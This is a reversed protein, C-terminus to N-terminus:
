EVPDPPGPTPEEAHPGAYGLAELAKEIERPVEFADGSSRSVRNQHLYRALERALEGVREPHEASMDIRERPDRALDFLKPPRDRFEVLKWHGRLIGRQQGQPSEFYAWERSGPGGSLPPLFSTGQVREPPDIGLCDTITTFVDVLQVVDAVRGARPPGPAKPRPRCTPGSAGRMEPMSVLLPIRVLEEYVQEHLLEGHDQFEEGHDSILIVITRQLKGSRQLADLLAGVQHDTYAVGADYLQALYARESPSLQRGSRNLAQM